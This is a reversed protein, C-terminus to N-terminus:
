AQEKRIHIRVGESPLFTIDWVDRGEQDTVKYRAKNIDKALQRHWLDDLYDRLEELTM